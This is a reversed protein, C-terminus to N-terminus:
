WFRWWPRKARQQVPVAAKLASKAAPNLREMGAFVEDLPRGEVPEGTSHITCTLSLTNLQEKKIGAKLVSNLEASTLGIEYVQVIALKADWLSQAIELAAMFVPTQDYRREVAQNTQIDRLVYTDSYRPANGLVVRACASPLFSAMRGLTLEDIGSALLPANAQDHDLFRQTEYLGRLITELLPRHAASVKSEIAAAHVRVFHDATRRQGAGLDEPRVLLHQKYTYMPNEDTVAPFTDGLQRLLASCEPWEEGDVFVDGQVGDAFAGVYCRLHHVGPSLKPVLADAFTKFLCDQRASAQASKADFGMFQLPGALVRYAYGKDGPLELPWQAVLCDHPNDEFMFKLLPRFLLAWNASVMDAAEQATTGRGVGLERALGNPFVSHRTEISPTVM